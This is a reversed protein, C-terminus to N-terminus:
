CRKPITVILARYQLQCKPYNSAGPIVIDGDVATFQNCFDNKCHVAIQWFIKLINEFVKIQWFIQLINRVSQNGLINAMNEISKEISGPGIM